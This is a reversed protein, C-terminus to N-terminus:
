FNSEFRELVDLIKLGSPADQLELVAIIKIWIIQLSFHILNYPVMPM